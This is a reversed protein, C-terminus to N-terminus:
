LAKAHAWGMTLVIRLNKLLEEDGTVITMQSVHKVRYAHKGHPFEIDIYAPMFGIPCQIRLAPDRGEFRNTCTFTFSRYEFQSDLDHLLESLMVDRVEKYDTLRNIDSLYNEFTADSLLNRRFCVRSM